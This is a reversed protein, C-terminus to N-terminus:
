TRARSTRCHVRVCASCRHGGCQEGRRGCRPRVQGRRYCEVCHSMAQDERSACATELAQTAELVRSRLNACRGQRPSRCQGSNLASSVRLPYCCKGPSIQGHATSAVPLPLTWGKKAAIKGMQCWLYEMSVNLNSKLKVLAKTILVDRRRHTPTRPQQSTLFRTPRGTRPRKAPASQRESAEM